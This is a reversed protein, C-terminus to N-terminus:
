QSLLSKGVMRVVPFTQRFCPISLPPLPHHHHAHLRGSDPTIGHHTGIMHFCVSDQLFSKRNVIKTILLPLNWDHSFLNFDPLLFFSGVVRVRTHETEIQATAAICRHGTNELKNQQCHRNGKREKMSVKGILSFRRGQEPCVHNTGCPQTNDYTKGSMSAPM